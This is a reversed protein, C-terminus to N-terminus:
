KMRALWQEETFYLKGGSLLPQNPASQPPMDDRDDVAKLWETVEEITLKATDLLTEISMTIQLYKKPVVRLLKEVSRQEDINDDYINLSSILGSLAFRSTTWKSTTASPSCRGSVVYGSYPQRALTILTSTFRSIAEWLEKSMKKMALTPVMEAPMASLITDLAM